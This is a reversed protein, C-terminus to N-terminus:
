KPFARYYRRNRMDPTNLRKHYRQAKEITLHRRPPRPLRRPLLATCSTVAMLLFCLLRM